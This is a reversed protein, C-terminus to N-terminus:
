YQSLLSDDYYTIKVQMFFYELYLHLILSFKGQGATLGAKPGTWYLGGSPHLVPLSEPRSSQM